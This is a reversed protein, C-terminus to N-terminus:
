KKMRPAEGAGQFQGSRRKPDREFQGNTQGAANKGRTNLNELKKAEKKSGERVPNRQNAM